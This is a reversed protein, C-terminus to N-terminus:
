HYDKSAWGIVNYISNSYFGCEIKDFYWLTCYKVLRVNAQHLVTITVSATKSLYSILCKVTNREYYPSIIDGPM